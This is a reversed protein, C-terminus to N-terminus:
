KGCGSKCDALTAYMAWDTDPHVEVCTDNQCKWKNRFKDINEECQSKTSYIGLRPDKYEVCQPPSSYIGSPERKGGFKYTCMERNRIATECDQKTRKPGQTADKYQACHGTFDGDKKECGWYQGCVNSTECEEQSKFGREFKGSVCKGTNFGNSDQACKWLTRQGSFPWLSMIKAIPFYIIAGFVVILVVILAAAFGPKQKAVETLTATPSITSMSKIWVIGVVIGIVAIAGLGSWVAKITDDLGRAEIQADQKADNVLRLLTEDRTANEIAMNIVADSVSDVIMDQTFNCKGKGGFRGNNGLILEVDSGQAVSLQNVQQVINEVTIENRIVDKIRNILTTQVTTSKFANGLGTLFGSVEKFTQSSKNDLDAVILNAIQNAQSQTVNTVVKMNAALKQDISFGEDCVICNKLCKIRLKFNQSANVTNSLRTTNQLLINTIRERYINNVAETSLKTIAPGM